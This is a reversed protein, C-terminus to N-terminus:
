PSGKREDRQNKTYRPKLNEIVNDHDDKKKKQLFYIDDAKM